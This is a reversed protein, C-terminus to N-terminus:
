LQKYVDYPRDPPKGLLIWGNLTTNSCKSGEFSRSSRSGSRNEIGVTSRM